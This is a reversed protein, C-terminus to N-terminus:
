ERTCSRAPRPLLRTAETEIRAAESNRRNAFAVRSARSKASAERSALPVLPWNVLTNCAMSMITVVKLSWSASSNLVFSFHSAARESPVRSATTADRAISSIVSVIALSMASTSCISLRRAYAPTWQRSSPATSSLGAGELPHQLLGHRPFTQRHPPSPARPAPACPATTMKCSCCDSARRALASAEWRRAPGPATAAALSM